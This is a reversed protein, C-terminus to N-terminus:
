FGRGRSFAIGRRPASAFSPRSRGAKGKLCWQSSSHWRIICGVRLGGDPQTRCCRSLSFGGANPSAIKGTARGNGDPEHAHAAGDPGGSGRSCGRSCGSSSGASRPISPISLTEPKSSELCSFSWPPRGRARSRYFLRGVERCQRRTLNCSHPTQGGGRFGEGTRGAVAILNCLFGRHGAGPAKRLRTPDKEVIVCIPFHMPRALVQSPAYAPPPGENALANTYGM